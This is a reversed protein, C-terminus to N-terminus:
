RSRIVLFKEFFGPKHREDSPRLNVLIATLERNMLKTRRTTGRDNRERAEDHSARARISRPTASKSTM